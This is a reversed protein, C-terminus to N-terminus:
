RMSLLAGADQSSLPQLNESATILKGAAWVMWITENAIHDTGQTLSAPSVAAAATVTTIPFSLSTTM